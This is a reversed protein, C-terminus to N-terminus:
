RPRDDGRGGADGGARRPERGPAASLPAVGRRRLERAGRRGGPERAALGLAGARARPPPLLKDARAGDDRRGGPAAARRDRRDGRGAAATRRLRGHRPRLRPREALLPALYEKLQRMAELGAERAAPNGISSTGGQMIADYWDRLKGAEDIATLEAIVLLPVWMAYQEKLDVPEGLPLAEAVRRAIAEVKPDLEERLARPSRIRRAVIGAKKNHERGRWHFFGGGFVSAGPGETIPVFRERDELVARADDYGSVVWAELAVSFFVPAEARLRRFVEHRDIAPDGAVVADFDAVLPDTPATASM